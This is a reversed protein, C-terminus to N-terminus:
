KCARGTQRDKEILETRPPNTKILKRLLSIGKETWLFVPLPTRGDKTTMIAQKGYEDSDYPPLLKWKDLHRTIMKLGRLWERLSFSDVFGLAHATEAFTYLGERQRRKETIANYISYGVYKERSVREKMAEKKKQKIAEDIEQWNDPKWEPHDNYIMDWLFGKYYQYLARMKEPDLIYVKYRAANNEEKKIEFSVPDLGAEKRRANAENIMTLFVFNKRNYEKSLDKTTIM